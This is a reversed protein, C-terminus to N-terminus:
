YIAKLESAKYVPKCYLQCEAMQEFCMINDLVEKLKEFDPHNNILYRFIEVYFVRFFDNSSTPFERYCSYKSELTKYHRDSLKINKISLLQSIPHTTLLKKFQLQHQLIAKKSHSM